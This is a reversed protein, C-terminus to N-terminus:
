VPGEIRVDTDRWGTPPSSPDIRPHVSSGTSYVNSINIGGLFAVTGDVLMLKRHDRHNPAWAAKSATLPNLPNFELVQVGAAKLRDFFPKGTSFAGVSDYMIRVQVGAAQREVLLDAFQTGIDGDEFIYSEVLIRDSAARIADFMSSYTAPGDELLTVRNGLVLSSGGIQQELVTQRDLIDLDGNANKLRAVLAASKKKSLPGWATQFNAAQKSYRESLFRTDPLTSCAALALAAATVAAVRWSTNKRM